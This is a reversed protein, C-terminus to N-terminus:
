PHMARYEADRRVPVNVNKQVTCTSSDHLLDRLLVASAAGAASLNSRVRLFLPSSL